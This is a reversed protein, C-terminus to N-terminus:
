FLAFARAPRTPFPRPPGPQCKSDITWTTADWGGADPYTAQCAAEETACQGPRPGGNQVALRGARGYLVGTRVRIVLHFVGRASLRGPLARVPLDVGM